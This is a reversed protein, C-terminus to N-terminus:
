EAKLAELPSTQSARRAPIWCALLAVVFLAATVGAYTAPDVPSVNYLMTLLVRSSAFAAGLGVLVGVVTLAMGQRLVMVIQDRGTAGLAARVGLERNRETVTGSLVGYIGAAALVLSVLAFGEFLVLAFTREAAREAMLENATAIRIIPQDKDATWIANRLEPVLTNLSSRSRVVLTMAYDVFQWQVEPLYVAEVEGSALSIQKVDGVVGVIERWPGNLGGIKIRQGVPSVEGFRSRAFSQNIIAVLPAKAADSAAFYRGSVLPIKMTEFYQDSVAYRFGGKDDEPNFKPQTEFHVGYRDFDTSLPLQSTMAAAEVGPQARVNKLAEAMFAGVLTENRLRGGGGQIQLTLLNTSDFGPNVAFLQEMSRFLLGSGVLLVIALAVETVVLTSRTFRSTAASRRTNRRISDHLNGRAAQLAPVLGFIVGVVTTLALAFALVSGEIRIAALRPLTSPSLAVLIRVGAFAVAVGAAGGLLALLFSESLLQRVIRARGAGLAARMAFEGERQAGRALLLNMVNLCAVLLVLAVAGLVALLAPRVGTVIDDGLKPAMFALNSYDKPFDSGMNQAIRGLDSRAQTITVTSKRLAVVRLHRCSRCAQPLSVEYRLPVYYQATPSLVNEFTAPMVGVVTFDNEMMTIPTGIIRSDGGFRNRWLANTLIIVRQSGQVNEEDRFARGLAPAVGLVRFFSPTVREGELFQPEGKGTLTGSSSAMAAMSSFSRNKELIDAYTSYGLDNKDSPDTGEWIMMIRNANPYPLSEFLIPNVASFIATTAGIGLALTFVALSTFAPRRMLMRWAFRLDSQLASMFSDGNNSRSVRQAPTATLRTRPSCCTERWFWRNAAPIGKTACITAYREELDGILADHLHNPVVRELLWRAFAPPRNM